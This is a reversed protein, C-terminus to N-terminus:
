LHWIGFTGNVLFALHALYTRQFHWIGFNGFALVAMRWFQSNGLTDFAFSALLVLYWIDFYYMGLVLHRTGIALLVLHWFYWMSFTGITLFALIGFELLPM